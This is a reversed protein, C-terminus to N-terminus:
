FTGVLAIRVMTNTRIDSLSVGPMLMLDDPRDYYHIHFESKLSLHESFYHQFGVTARKHGVKYVPEGTDSLHDLRSYLIFPYLDYELLVNWSIKQRFSSRLSATLYESQLNLNERLLPFRIRGAYIYENAKSRQFSIGTIINENIILQGDLGFNTDDGFGIYAGVVAELSEEENLMHYGNVLLNAERDVLFNDNPHTELARYNAPPDYIFPLVVTSDFYQNNYFGFPPILKGATVEIESTIFTGVSAESIRVERELDRKITNEPPAGGSWSNETELYLKTRFRTTELSLLVNLNKLQAYSQADMVMVKQMGMMNMGMAMKTMYDYNLQYFTHIGLRIDQSLEFTKAQVPQVTLLCLIFGGVFFHRAKM